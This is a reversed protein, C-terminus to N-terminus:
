QRNARFRVGEAPLRSVVASMDCDKQKHVARHCSPCLIAFDEPATHTKEREAYKSLPLRHHADIIAHGYTPEPRLGCIECFLEGHKAKFAAKAEKPLLSDRELYWHQRLKREGEAARGEISDAVEQTEAGLHYVAQSGSSVGSTVGFVANQIYQTLSSDLAKLALGVCKDFDQLFMRLAGERIALQVGASSPRGKGRTKPIVREYVVEGELSKFACHINDFKSSWWGQRKKAGETPADLRTCLAFARVLEAEKIRGTAFAFYGMCALCEDEVQSPKRQKSKM